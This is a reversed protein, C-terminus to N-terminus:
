INYFSIQVASVSVPYCAHPIAENRFLSAVTTSESLNSRDEVFSTKTSDVVSEYLEIGDREAYGYLLAVGSERM